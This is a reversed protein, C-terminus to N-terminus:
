VAYSIRMLSQLESTHEESRQDDNVVAGIGGVGDLLGLLKANEVLHFEDHRHQGGEQGLFQARFDELARVAGHREPPRKLILVGHDLVEDALELFFEAALRM